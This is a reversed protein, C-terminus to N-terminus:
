DGENYPKDNAIQYKLARLTRPAINKAQLRVLEPLYETRSLSASWIQGNRLSAEALPQAEGPRLMRFYPVLPAM